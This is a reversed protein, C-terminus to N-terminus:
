IYRCTVIGTDGIRDIEEYLKGWLKDRHSYNEGLQKLLADIKNEAHAYTEKLTDESAVSMFEYERLRKNLILIGKGYTKDQEDFARYCERIRKVTPVFARATDKKLEISDQDFADQLSGVLDIWDEDGNDQLTAEEMLDSFLTQEEDWFFDEDTESETLEVIDDEGDYGTDPDRCHGPFLKNPKGINRSRRTKVRGGDSHRHYNVRSQPSYFVRNHSLRRPFM